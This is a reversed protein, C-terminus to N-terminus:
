FFHGCQGVAHALDFFFGGRQCVGNLPGVVLDRGSPRLGFAGFGFGFVDLCRHDFQLCVDLFGLAVGFRRQFAQLTLASNVESGGGKGENGHGVDEGAINLANTMVTLGSTAALYPIMAETTSGGTIIITSGDRVLGAAAEGIRAKIEARQAARHVIEAEQRAPRTAVLLAGGHVRRV